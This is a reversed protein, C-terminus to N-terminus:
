FFGKVTIVAGSDAIGVLAPGTEGYEAAYVPTEGTFTVLDDGKYPLRTDGVLGRVYRALDGARATGPALAVYDYAGRYSDADASIGVIRLDAPLEELRAALSDVTLPTLEIPVIRESPDIKRYLTHMKADRVERIGGTLVDKMRWIVPREQTEHASRGIIDFVQGTEKHVISEM